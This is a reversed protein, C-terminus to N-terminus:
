LVPRMQAGERDTRVITWEKYASTSFGYLILGSPNLFNITQMNESQQWVWVNDIEKETVQEGDNLTIKITM